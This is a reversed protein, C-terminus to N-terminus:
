RSRAPPHVVRGYEDTVAFTVRAPDVGSTTDTIQGTVVVPVLKGNPPWITKPNATASVVPATQNSRYLLDHIGDGVLTVTTGATWAGDGSGEVESSSTTTRGPLM